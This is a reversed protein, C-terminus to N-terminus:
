QHQEAWVTADARQFYAQFIAFEQMIYELVQITDEDAGVIQGDEVICEAIVLSLINTRKNIVISVEEIKEGQQRYYATTVEWENNYDKLNVIRQQQSTQISTM